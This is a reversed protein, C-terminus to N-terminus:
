KTVKVIVSFVSTPSVDKEWPRHYILNLEIEGVSTARFKFIQKGPAGLRESQPKFEVDQIQQITPSDTTQVSWTYGTTPNADLVILFEENQVVEVQSGNSKEDLYLIGDPTRCGAIVLILIMMLLKIM